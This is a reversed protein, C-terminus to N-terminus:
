EANHKPRGNVITIALTISSMIDVLFQQELSKIRTYTEGRDSVVYRPPLYNLALAAIDYKCKECKCVGQHSNIVRDLQEFVLDEMYNKLQM